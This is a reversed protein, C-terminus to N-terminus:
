VASAPSKLLVRLAIPAVITTVGTMFMVVAFGTQDVLNMSLGVLAVILGVEGRPVMGVGVIVATKRGEKLVPLGCGVLKSVIALVSVIVALVVIDPSFVKVNLKAGMIFFFVPALFDRIADIGPTLNWQNAHDAIALGAFFAGIIGAMGIKEALVSLALCLALALILPAQRTSMNEVPKKVRSVIHPAIFIMFLSFATAMALVIIIQTWNVGGASAMGAVMALIIMGLIDDFVAASLIIQAARTKLVGLDGMVRATIGVSTAVMAAAIFTSQAASHGTLMWYAFGLVFPLAVGGLAVNMSRKGVKLLQGAPTELGVSFLLFIAGLGALSNIPHGDQIASAPIWGFAFPGLLIGALIEGLVAPLKLREFIEGLIKASVFIVLLELLFPD